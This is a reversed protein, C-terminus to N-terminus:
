PGNNKGKWWVTKPSKSEAGESAAYKAERVIDSFYYFFIFSNIFVYRDFAKKPYSVEKNLEDKESDINDTFKVSTTRSAEKERWGDEDSEDDRIERM